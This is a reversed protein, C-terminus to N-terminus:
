DDVAFGHAVFDWVEQASIPKNTTDDGGSSQAVFMVTQMTMAAMRRPNLGARIKGAAHADEMLETLLALLPQMKYGISLPLTFQLAIAALCIFAMGKLLLDSKKWGATRLYDRAFLAGAALMMFVFLLQAHANWVPARPWLKYGLGEFCLIYFLASAMYLVYFRYIKERVALWLFLHYIILGITIGFGAGHVWESFEHQGLFSETSSLTLPVNISSTSAIRLFYDQSQGAQLQLPITYARTQVPRANFPLSDGLKLYAQDGAGPAFLEVNDLVPYNLQLILPLNHTSANEIRFHFWCAGHHYGFVIARHELNQLPQKQIDNLTLVGQPDCLWSVHPEIRTESIPGQLVLATTNVAVALRCACLCLLGLLLPLLYSSKRPLTILPPHRM